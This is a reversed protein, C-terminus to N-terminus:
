RNTNFGLEIDKVRAINNHELQPSERAGGNVAFDRNNEQVKIQLEM